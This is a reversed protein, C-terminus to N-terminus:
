GKRGGGDREKKRPPKREKKDRCESRSGQEGQKKSDSRGGVVWWGGVCM